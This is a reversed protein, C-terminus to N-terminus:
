DVEIKNESGLDKINIDESLREIEKYKLFSEITGTELFNKFAEEM